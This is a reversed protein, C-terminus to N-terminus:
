KKKIALVTKYLGMEFVVSTDYQDALNEKIENMMLAEREDYEYHAVWEKEAEHLGHMEGYVKRIAAVEKDYDAKHKESDADKVKEALVLTDPYLRLIEKWFKGRDVISINHIAAGAIIITFDGPKFTSMDTANMERLSISDGFKDRTADLMEPNLDIGTIKRSGAEVFAASTAGDGVGIDLIPIERFNPVRESVTELVSRQLGDYNMGQLAFVETFLEGYDKSLKEFRDNVSGGATVNETMPQTIDKPKGM